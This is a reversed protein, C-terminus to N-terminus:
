YRVRTQRGKHDNYVERFWKNVVWKSKTDTTGSPFAPCGAHKSAVNPKRTTSTPSALNYWFVGTNKTPPVSIGARTFVTHGMEYDDSLYILMTALRNGRWEHRELMHDPNQFDFHAEYQGGNMDYCGVQLEEASKLSLGTVDHMRNNVHKIVQHHDPEPIWAVDQTRYDAEVMLGTRTDHVVSREMMPTAESKLAAAEDDTILNHFLTVHLDKTWVHEVGIGRYRLRASTAWTCHGFQPPADQANMQIPTESDLVAASGCLEIQQHVHWQDSKDGSNFLTPAAYEEAKETLYESGVDSLISELLFKALPNNNALFQEHLKKFLEIDDRYTSDADQYPLMLGYSEKNLLYQGVGAARASAAFAVVDDVPRDNGRPVYSIQDLNVQTLDILYVSHVAPVRFLGRVAYRVIPYYTSSGKYYGLADVGGWFNVEWSNFSHILPAVIPLGQDILTQITDPNILFVDTDISLFRDAHGAYASELAQQRLRIMRKFRENSWCHPRWDCATSTQWDSAPASLAEDDEDDFDFDISAYFPRNSTAWSSWQETTSDMSSRAVRIWLSIRHQPFSQRDLCWLFYPLHQGVNRALIAIWLKPPETAAPPIGNSSGLSICGLLVVAFRLWMRASCQM